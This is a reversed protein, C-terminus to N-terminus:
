IMHKMMLIMVYGIVACVLFLVGFELFHKEVQESGKAFQNLEKKESLNWTLLIKIARQKWEEEPLETLLHLQIHDEIGKLTQSAQNMTSPQLVLIYDPSQELRHLFLSQAKNRKREYEQENRLFEMIDNDDISALSVKKLIRREQDKKEFHILGIFVLYASTSM